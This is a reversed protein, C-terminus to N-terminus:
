IFKERFICSPFPSHIPSCALCRLVGRLLKNYISLSGVGRANSHEGTRVYGESSCRERQRNWAAGGGGMVVCGCCRRRRLRRRWARGNAGDIGDAVVVLELRRGETKRRQKPWIQAVPAAKNL